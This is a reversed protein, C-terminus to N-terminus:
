SSAKKKAKRQSAEDEARLARELADLRRSWVSRTKQLWAELADFGSGRSHVRRRVVHIRRRVRALEYEGAVTTAVSEVQPRRDERRTGERAEVNQRRVPVFTVRGESGIASGQPERGVRAADHNERMSAHPAYFEEIAEAHANEEVRTIFRQLTDTSPM